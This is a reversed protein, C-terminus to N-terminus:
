RMIMVVRNFVSTIGDNFTENTTPVMNVIM